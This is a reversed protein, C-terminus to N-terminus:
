GPGVVQEVDGSSGYNVDHSLCNVDDRCLQAYLRGAGDDLDYANAIHYPCTSRKALERVCGIGACPEAFVLPRFQRLIWTLKFLALKILDHERPGHPPPM